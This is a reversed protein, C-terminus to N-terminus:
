IIDKKTKDAEVKEYKPQASGKSVESQLKQGAQYLEADKTESVNLM